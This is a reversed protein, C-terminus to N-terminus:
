LSSCLEQTFSELTWPTSESLNVNLIIPTPLPTVSASARPDGIVTEVTVDDIELIGERTEPPTAVGDVYLTLIMVEPNPSSDVERGFSGNIVISHCSKSNDVDASLLIDGFQAVVTNGTRYLSWIGAQEAVPGIYEDPLGIGFTYTGFGPTRLFSMGTLVGSGNAAQSYVTRVTHVDRYWAKYADLMQTKQPIPAPDVVNTATPDLDFDFLVPEIMAGWFRPWQVLRWRGDSSLVSYSVTGLEWFRTNQVTPDRAAISSYFSVGDLNEPPALELAALLTPYIDAIGVTDSIVQNNLSQDPWKMILPTRLGGETVQAKKGTYPLNSDISTTTGGNDSVVVVITNDLAGINELHSVIRGINTDLQNVLARYRGAPTDPYNAAFEDAPQVPTHPAYFWLNLFWPAQAANLETIVDLAKDTLINELHGNFNKGSETDGELWPNLYTPRRMQLEGDVHTGALRWQNLFGFWHDFGQHDPWATRETDGIHWKGIHWTTYGEQQLREPLTILEPSIGRANPLYGVREAYLGTLLAGRAPSCVSYAYHRTFRVGERALKDMNPTDIEKNNNNIALDNFGLDDVVILLINPKESASPDVGDGLNGCGIIGVCVFGLVFLMVRKM